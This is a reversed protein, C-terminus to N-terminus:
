LEWWSCSSKSNRLMLSAAKWQAQHVFTPQKATFANASITQEAHVCIDVLQCLIQSCHGVGHLHARVLKM